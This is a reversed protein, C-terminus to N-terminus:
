TGLLHHLFWTALSFYVTISFIDNLTTILPGSAATPDINLKHLVLPIIAGSMTGILLTLWLSSAVILGIGWNGIWFFAIFFILVSCSTGICLAVILERKIVSGVTERSIKGSSLGQIVMALSQTGTNGTMGAIMPMFYTLATVQAITHEFKQLITATIMGIFLLMVLWPLRRGTVSLPNSVGTYAKTSVASLRSIDRRSQAIIVDVIDDVTVIGLLKGAKDVVPLALFDYRELIRAVEAQDTDVTVTIVREYMISEVPTDPAAILLERLSVVGVLRHNEDVVFVYYITEATPAKERLYDIVRQVTFTNYVAVYENTMLGGATDEAYHLLKRAYEAEEKEMKTLVAEARQSDLKGLIDAVDDSKMVNFIRPLREPKVADLIDSQEDYNVDALLEAIVEDPVCSLFAARHTEELHLFIHAIDYPQLEEIHSRLAKYNKNQIHHIVNQVLSVGNRVARDDYLTKPCATLRVSYNLNQPPFTHTVM